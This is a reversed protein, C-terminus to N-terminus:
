NPFVGTNLNFMGDVSVPLKGSFSSSGSIVSNYVSKQAYSNNEYIISFADAKEIGQWRRLHYANGMFVVGSRNRNIFSVLENLSNSSDTLGTWRSNAIIFIQHDYRDMKGLNEIFGYGSGPLQYFTINNYQTIKSEILPASGIVGIGYTTDSNTSLPFLQSKDHMLTVSSNYLKQILDHTSEREAKVLISDSCLSNQSVNEFDVLHHKFALSKKCKIEIDEWTLLGKEIARKVENIAKGLDETFEIIDNGAALALADVYGPSGMVRAGEMNMADTIVLGEFGLEEKLLDKILISSFSSPTGPEFTLEPVDIHATMIGWVGEDIIMKFPLLEYSHMYDITHDVRPLTYHSDTETDGHGPFHKGVAMVGGQQMGLTYAISKEAVNLPDEGFSRFGIVPNDPNSNVDAVPAMNVHIGFLKLQRAIEKGMEFILNSDQIAGLTMAYPFRTLDEIRMAGGWEGDISILLPLSSLQQLDNVAELTQAANMRFLLIGGPQFEEVEEKLSGSLPYDVALWFLQSIREKPTLNNYVSDVWHSSREYIDQPFHYSINTDYNVDICDSKSLTPPNQSDEGSRGSCGFAFISFTFLATLLLFM